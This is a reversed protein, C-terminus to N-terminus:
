KEIYYTLNWAWNCRLNVAFGKLSAAGSVQECAVSKLEKKVMTGKVCRMVRGGLPYYALKLV